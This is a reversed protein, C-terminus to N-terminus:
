SSAKCMRLWTRCPDQTIWGPYPSVQQYSLCFFRSAGFFLRKVALPVCVAVLCLTRVLMPYRDM